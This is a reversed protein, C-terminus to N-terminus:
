NFQVTMGSRRGSDGHGTTTSWRLAMMIFGDVEGSSQRKRNTEFAKGTREGGKERRISFHGIETGDVVRCM